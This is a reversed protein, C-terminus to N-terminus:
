QNKDKPESNVLLGKKVLKDGTMKISKTANSSVWSMRNEDVVVKDGNKANEKGPKQPKAVKTPRLLTHILRTLSNDYKYKQNPAMKHLCGDIYQAYAASQEKYYTQKRDLAQLTSRLRQLENARSERYLRM